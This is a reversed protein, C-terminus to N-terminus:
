DFKFHIISQRTNLIHANLNTNFYFALHTVYINIFKVLEFVDLIM